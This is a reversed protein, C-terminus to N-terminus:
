KGNKKRRISSETEVELEDVVYRTRKENSLHIM